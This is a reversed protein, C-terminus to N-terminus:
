MVSRPLSDRSAVLSRSGVLSTEPVDAEFTHKLNKFESQAIRQSV